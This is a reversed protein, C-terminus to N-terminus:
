SASLARDFSLPSGCNVLGREMLHEVHALVSLSAANVLKPDLGKYIAPVIGRVTNNGTRICELISQERLRRHLLYARVLRQPEEVQGGHGPLYTADNRETLLELSRIYAGMRGEPPAVVSTNWGMVHDGSFLIRTGELAYCLHDPAHGPTHVARFAWGEGALSQGDAMSIDPAFGLDVYEGGSPSSRATGRSGAPYGFGATKAGTRALLAPLGATHDRHTHTILVHTIPRSGAAALIAGLHAPDDPGPDILALSTTGVLYTNTGKFTFPGPNNAVIRVVGPALERPEGYHFQMSTKFPLDEAM